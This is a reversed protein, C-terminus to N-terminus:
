DADFEFRFNLRRINGRWDTGTSLHMLFQDELTATTLTGAWVLAREGSRLVGGQLPGQSTWRAELTSTEDRDLVLHIRGSRGIWPRTDLRVRVRVQAQMGDARERWQMQVQPPMTHTGTDDLRHPNAAAPAVGSLQAVLALAAWGVLRPAPKM